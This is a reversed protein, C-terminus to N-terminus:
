DVHDIINDDYIQNKNENNGANFMDNFDDLNANYSKKYQKLLKSRKFLILFVYVIILLIGVIFFGYSLYRGTSSESGLYNLGMVIFFSAFLLYIGYKIMLSFTFMKKMPALMEKEQQKQTKKM